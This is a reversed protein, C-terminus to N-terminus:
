PITVTLEIRYDKNRKIVQQPFNEWELQGPRDGALYREAVLWDVAWKLRAVANDHDMPAGLFMKARIKAKSPPSAPPKPLMGAAQRINLSGFYNTREKHKKAWHMRGNALNPPMPMVFTLVSM